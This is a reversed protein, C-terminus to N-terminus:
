GIGAKEAIARLEKITFHKPEEGRSEPKDTPVGLSAPTSSRNDDENKSNSVFNESGALPPATANSMMIGKNSAEVASLLTVVWNNASDADRTRFQFEEQVNFIKISFRHDGYMNVYTVDEIWKMPIQHLAELEQKGTAPNTVKSFCSLIRFLLLRLSHFHIFFSIYYNFLSNIDTGQRQIWLTTEEKAKRGEVLSALIDKWIVRMKSRRQQEIWGNAILNSKPNIPRQFCPKNPIVAVTSNLPASSVGLTNPLPANSDPHLSPLSSQPRAHIENSTTM